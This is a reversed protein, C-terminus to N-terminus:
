SVKLVPYFLVKTYFFRYSYNNSLDVRINPVDHIYICHLNSSNKKGGGREFELM